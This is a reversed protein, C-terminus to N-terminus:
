QSTLHDVTNSEMEAERCRQVTDLSPPQHRYSCEEAYWMSETGVIYRMEKGVEPWSLSDVPDTCLLVIRRAVRMRRNNTQRTQERMNGGIRLSAQKQIGNYM